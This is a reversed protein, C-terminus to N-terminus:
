RYSPDNAIREYEKRQEETLGAWADGDNGSPRTSHADNRRNFDNREWTRVAAKFDKMRNRGIMWGKAEYFDYFQEPNVNNGRERCYDQVEELTPPTFETSSTPRRGMRYPHLPCKESPCLRVEDRNDCTCDLCKARIAKIPTLM